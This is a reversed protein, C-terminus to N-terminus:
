RKRCFFGAPTSVIFIPIQVFTREIWSWKSCDPFNPQISIKKGILINYIEILDGTVKWDRQLNLIKLREMYKSGSHAMYRREQQVKELINILNLNDMAPSWAQVCYEVHPRVYTKHLIIAHLRNRDQLHQAVTASSNKGVLSCPYRLDPWTLSTVSAVLRTSTSVVESESCKVIPGNFHTKSFENKNRPLSSSARSAM